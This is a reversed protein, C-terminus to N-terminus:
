RRGFPRYGPVTYGPVVRYPRLVKQAAVQTVVASKTATMRAQVANPMVAIAFAAIGTVLCAFVAPKYSYNM